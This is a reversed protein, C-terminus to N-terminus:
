RTILKKNEIAVAIAEIGSFSRRHRRHGPPKFMVSPSNYFRSVMVLVLMAYSIALNLAITNSNFYECKKWFFVKIFIYAYTEFIYLICSANM